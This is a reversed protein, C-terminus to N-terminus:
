DLGKRNMQVVDGNMEDHIDSVCLWPKLFIFVVSDNATLMEM